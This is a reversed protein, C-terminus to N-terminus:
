LKEAKSGSYTVSNNEVKYDNTYMLTVVKEKRSWHNIYYEDTRYIDTTDRLKSKEWGLNLLNGDVIQYNTSRWNLLQKLDINQSYLNGFGLILLLTALKM